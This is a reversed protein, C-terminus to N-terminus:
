RHSKAVGNRCGDCYICMMFNKINYEISSPTHVLIYDRSIVKRKIRTKEPLEHHSAPETSAVSLFYM